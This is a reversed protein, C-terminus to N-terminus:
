LLNDEIFADLKDKCKKGEFKALTIAKSIQRLNDEVAKMKKKAETIRAKVRRKGDELICNYELEWAEM